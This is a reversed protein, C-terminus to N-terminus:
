GPDDTSIVDAQENLEHAPLDYEKEAETQEERENGQDSM